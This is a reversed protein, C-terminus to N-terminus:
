GADAEGRNRKSKDLLAKPRVVPPAVSSPVEVTAASQEDEDIYTWWQVGDEGELTLLVRDLVAVGRDDLRTTHGFTLHGPPEEHFAFNLQPHLHLKGPCRSLPGNFSLPDLRNVRVSIGLEEFFLVKLGDSEAVRISGSFGFHREFHDWILHYIVIGSPGGDIVPRREVPINFSEFEEAAARILAAISPFSPRLAAVLQEKTM